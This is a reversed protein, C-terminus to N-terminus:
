WNFGVISMDNNPFDIEIEFDHLSVIKFEVKRGGFYTRFSIIGQDAQAMKLHLGGENYLDIAGDHALVTGYYRWM